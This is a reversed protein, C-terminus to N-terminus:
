GSRSFHEFESNKQGYKGANTSIEFIVMTKSFQRGFSVLEFM